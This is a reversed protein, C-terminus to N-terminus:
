EIVEVLDKKILKMARCYSVVFEEDKYVHKHLEMDYYKNIKVKVRLTEPRTSPADLLEIWKKEIVKDEYGYNFRPVTLIKRVDFDMDFPVVYGNVGDKVGMEFASEFPCVLVPVGQVLAELVTYPWAERDSLQVVYTAAGFYESANMHLGMNIFGKPPNELKGDSFNLWLFPIDANNLMEALKMMRKENNGKDAAPIRTASMLIIPKHEYQSIMNHIVIGKEAEKGFSQKSTESVNVIYDTDQPIHLSPNTKCAHCMRISKSYEINEPIQDLIRLMILTDCIIKTKPNTLVKVVNSMYNIHLESAKNVVYTIDYYDSMTKCFNYIFTGIGGVVNISNIYLVVQTKIPPNIVEIDPNDEGKLEHTWMRCPKSIQCWRKLEPIDCKNTLLWVENREDQERIENILFTMDSTVHNYCYTVRKTKMLGMKFRKVKSDNIDTRYFYMYDPIIARNFEHEPDLYGIKRSFDEDETSDKKENFRVDGIFSRKFCRTCVSPNTLRDTDCCLKKNYQTGENTLSKWSFEIVDPKEKIKELLEYIFHDSVLDDADIFQVYEGKAVDLGANRATSCGGNDKRIVKCWTFETTFSKDSGDDVLIVEVDKTMQKNLCGLLESTYKEANWYPIIISLRIKRRAM